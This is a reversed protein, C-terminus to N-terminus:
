RLSSENIVKVNDPYTNAVIAAGLEVFAFTSTIYHLAANTPKCEIKLDGANLKIEPKERLYGGDYMVALHEALTYALISVASCVIDGGKEAYDAHGKAELSLTDGKTIKVVTM